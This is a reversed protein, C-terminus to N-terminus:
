TQGGPLTQRYAALMAKFASKEASSLNAKGNKPFITLMVVCEAVVFYSYAVRTAGSKGTHRSPPAFRLKRLGGTGAMVPGALPNVMLLQELAQLDEDTLRLSRWESAFTASYIFTLRM